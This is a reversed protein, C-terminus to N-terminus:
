LAEPTGARRMQNVIRVRVSGFWDRRDPPSLKETYCAAQRHEFALFLGM